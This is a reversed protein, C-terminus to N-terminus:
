YDIQIEEINGESDSLLLKKEDLVVAARNYTQLSITKSLKGKPLSWVEIISDNMGVVTKNDDSISVLISGNTNKVQSEFSNLLKRNKINWVEIVTKKSSEDLGGAVLTNGDSSISLSSISINDKCILEKVPKLRDNKLTLIKIECGIDISQRAAFTKGDASMSLIYTARDSIDYLITILPKIEGIRWIQFNKISNGLLGTLIFKKNMGIVGFENTLPLAEFIIKKSNKNINIGSENALKIFSNIKLARHLGNINDSESNVNKPLRIGVLEGNINFISGGEGGVRLKSTSSYSIEDISLNNDNVEGMEFELIPEFLSKSPVPFGAIFIKDGTNLTSSDGIKVFPYRAYGKESNFKMVVLDTGSIKSIDKYRFIKRTTSNSSVIEYNQDMEDTEDINPEVEVTKATTVVFYSTNSRSVITGTGRHLPNIECVLKKCNGIIPVGEGPIQPQNSHKIKVTIDKATALIRELPISYVLTQNIFINLLTAVVVFIIIIKTTQIKVKLTKM